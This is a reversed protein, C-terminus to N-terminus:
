GLYDFPHSFSDVRLYEIGDLIILKVFIQRHCGDHLFLFNGEHILNIADKRSLEQPPFFFSHGADTFYGIFTKVKTRSDDFIFDSIYFYRPM